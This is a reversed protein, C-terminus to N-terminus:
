TTTNEEETLIGDKINFYIFIGITLILISLVWLFYGTELSIIEALTGSEAGLIEKWSSFSVALFLALLSLNKAGKKEKALFYISILSLPNALWIIQELMGGGLFAISGMLFYDLSPVAKIEIYNITVANKTLSIVFAALSIVIILIKITKSKM